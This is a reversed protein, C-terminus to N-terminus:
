QERLEYGYKEVLFQQWGAEFEAASVDTVASILTEWSDHTRFAATLRPLQERGFTQVFYDVITSAAVSRQWAMCAPAETLPRLDWEDVALLQRLTTPAPPMYQVHRDWEPDLCLSDLSLCAPVNLRWMSQGRCLTRRDASSPERQGARIGQAEAYLWAAEANLWDATPEDSAAGLWMQTGGTMSGWWLRAGDRWPVGVAADAENWVQMVLPYTLYQVLIADDSVDVPAHALLPSPVTIREQRFHLFGLSEVTVPAVDVALHPPDGALGLDARLQEYLLDLKPAVAFVAQADAQRYRIRFHQTELAQERGWFADDPSTRQWGAPTERYFRSERHAEGSEDTVTAQVMALGSRLRTREVLTQQLRGGQASESALELERLHATQWVPDADADVLSATATFHDSRQLWNEVEIVDHLEGDIASVGRQAALWLILTCALVGSLALLGITRRVPSRLSPRTPEHSPATPLLQELSEARDWEADDLLTEWQFKSQGISM